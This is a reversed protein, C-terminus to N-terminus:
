PRNATSEKSRPTREPNLCVSQVPQWNRTSGAWREPHRLKAAEYVRTRNDLIAAHRGLHRDDPTVFHIASHLHETNYWKVFRLVWANADALAAFPRLPVLTPVQPHPLPGGLLPQRQQRAPPQLLNLHRAPPPDGPPHREEDARWQRCAVM